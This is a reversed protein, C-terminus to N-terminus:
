QHKQHPMPRTTSVWGRLTSTVVRSCPIQGLVMAIGLISVRFVRYEYTSQVRLSCALSTQSENRPVLMRLSGLTGLDRIAPAGGLNQYDNWMAAEVFQPDM